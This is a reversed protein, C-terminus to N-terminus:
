VLTYDGQSDPELSVQTTSPLCFAPRIGNLDDIITLIFYSGDPQVLSFEGGINETYDQLLWTTPSNDSDSVAVRNQQNQFYPINKMNDHSLIFVKRNETVDFSTISVELLANRVSEELLPFYEDTLYADVQGILYSPPTSTYGGSLVTEKILLTSQPVLLNNQLVLFRKPVNNEMIKVMTGAALDSINQSTPLLMKEFTMHQGDYPNQIPGDAKKKWVVWYDKLYPYSAETAPDINLAVGGDQGVAKLGTVQIPTTLISSGGGGLRLINAM